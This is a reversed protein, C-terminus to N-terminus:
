QHKLAVAQMASSSVDNLYSFGAPLATVISPVLGFCAALTDQGATRGAVVMSPPCIGFDNSGNFGVGTIVIDNALTTTLTVNTPPSGGASVNRASGGTGDFVAQVLSIPFEMATLGTFSAGAPWGCTATPAAGALAGAYVTINNVGGILGAPGKVYVTSATDTLTPESATTGESDCFIVAVNGSAFSTLAVGGQTTNSRAGTTHLVTVPTFSSGSSCATNGGNVLVCNTGTGAAANANGGGDGVLVNTTHAITGGSSCAQQGLKAATVVLCDGPTFGSMPTINLFLTALGSIGSPFLLGAASTLVVVLAAFLWVTRWRFKMTGIM